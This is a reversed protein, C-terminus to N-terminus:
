WSIIESRVVLRINYTSITDAIFSGEHHHWRGVLGRSNLHAIIVDKEEEMEHRSMRKMLCLLGGLVFAICSSKHRSSDKTVQSTQGEPRAEFM